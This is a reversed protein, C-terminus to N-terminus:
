GARRMPRRSLTWVVVAGIAVVGALTLAAGVIVSRPRYFFEVRHAGAAVAVGRFLYDTRYIPTPVGDVTASWGPYYKDTLILLGPRDSRADIAVHEPQYDVIRVSDGGEVAAAQADFPPPSADELVAVTRLDVAQM